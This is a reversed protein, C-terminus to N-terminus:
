QCVDKFHQKWVVLLVQIDNIATNRNLQPTGFDSNVLARNRISETILAAHWHNRDVQLTYSGIPTRNTFNPRYPAMSSNYATLPMIGLM